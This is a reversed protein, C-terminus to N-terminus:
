CKGAEKPNHLGGINEALQKETLEVMDRAIWLLSGVRDLEQNRGEDDSRDMGIVKTTIEDILHALHTIDSHIDDVSTTQDTPRM